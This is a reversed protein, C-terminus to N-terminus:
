SQGRDFNCRAGHATVGGARRDAGPGVQKGAAFRLARALREVFLVGHQVADKHWEDMAESTVFGYM